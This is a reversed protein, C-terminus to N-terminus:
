STSIPSPPEAAPSASPDGGGDQELLREIAGRVQRLLSERDAATLGATAIQPGVRVSVTGARVRPSGAALLDRSGLIAVPVIPEQTEIALVFTGRKFEGLTGSRSRTGEPYLGLSLNDKEMRRGAARMNEMAAQRNKRDVFVHGAANMAQAFLPIRSLEQKAVFRISAPLGILLVFIDLNSEHNSMFVQPRDRLVHDLGSVEVRIGAAWLMSRSWHRHVWDFFGKPARVLGGVTSILSFLLTSVLAMTWFLVTRM